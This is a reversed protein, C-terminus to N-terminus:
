IAAFDNFIQRTTVRTTAQNPKPPKVPNPKAKDPPPTTPTPM